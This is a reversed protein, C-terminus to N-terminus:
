FYIIDTLVLNIRPTFSQRRTNIGIAAVADIAYMVMGKMVRRYGNAYDKKYRFKKCVCNTVLILKM